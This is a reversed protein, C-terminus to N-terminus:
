GDGLTASSVFAARLVAAKLNDPIIIKPVGGLARFARIHLDVWTTAKQDFVIDAWMHRSHSLVMVFVWAKRAKGELPDYLKGVYGFDVQAFEGPDTEEVPIAVDEASPGRERQLRACLRKVASLSGQFDPDLRLADFIAKPAAGRALMTEINDKWERVSSTNQPPMAVEGLQQRVAGALTELEPLADPRGWLLGEASLARRYRRETNPSIGLLRAIERAGTGLRHYRVLDQLRHM